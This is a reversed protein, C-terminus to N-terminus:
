GFNRELTVRSLQFMRRFRKDDWGELVAFISPHPLRRGRSKGAMASMILKSLYRVSQCNASGRRVLPAKSKRAASAVGISARARTFSVDAKSLNQTGWKSCRSSGTRFSTSITPAAEQRMEFNTKALDAFPDVQLNRNKWLEDRGCIWGRLPSIHLYGLVHTSPQRSSDNSDRLSPVTSTCYRNISRRSPIVTCSLESAVDRARFGETISCAYRLTRERGSEARSLSSLPNPQTQNLNSDGGEGFGPSPLPARCNSFRTPWGAWGVTELVTHSHKLKMSGRPPM